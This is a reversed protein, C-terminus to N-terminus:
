VRHWIGSPLNIDNDAWSIRRPSSCNLLKMVMREAFIGKIDDDCLGSFAWHYFEQLRDWGAIDSNMDTTSM